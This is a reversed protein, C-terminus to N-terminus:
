LVAFEASFRVLQRLGNGYGNKEKQAPQDWIPRQLPLDSVLALGTAERGIRRAAHYVASLELDIGKFGKEEIGIVNKREEAMLSGITFIDGTRFVAGGPARESLFGILSETYAPAAPILEGTDFVKKMDFSDAHYRSFGEGNFANRCAILDGIRCGNLGGCTGAFVIRRVPAIDMLLVADGMFRDGMGCHIVAFEVGNKVAMMGSYLRGSFPAAEDCHEKFSKVPLVPTIIATEPFIEAPCGFCYNFM